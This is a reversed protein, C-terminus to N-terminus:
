TEYCLIRVDEKAVKECGRATTSNVYQFYFEKAFVFPLGSISVLFTNFSFNM